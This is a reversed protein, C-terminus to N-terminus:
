NIETREVNRSICCDNDYVLNQSSVTLQCYPLENKMIRNIRTGVQLSLKGKYPLAIALEKKTVARVVTKPVLTKDLVEKTCKDVM